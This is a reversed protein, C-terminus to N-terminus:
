YRRGEEILDRITLDDGLVNGKRLEIMAEIANRIDTRNCDDSTPRIPVLEAVPMQNSTIVVRQGKRIASLLGDIQGGIDQSNVEIAGIM